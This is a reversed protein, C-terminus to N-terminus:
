TNNIEIYHQAQDLAERLVTVAAPKDEAAAPAYIRAGMLGGAADQVIQSIDLGRKNVEFLVAILAKSLLEADNM